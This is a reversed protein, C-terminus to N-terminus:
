GTRLPRSAEARGTAFKDSVRRKRGLKVIGYGFMENLRHNRTEIKSSKGRGRKKPEGLNAVTLVCGKPSPEIAKIVWSFRKQSPM